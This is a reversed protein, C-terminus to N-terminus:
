RRSYLHPTLRRSVLEDPTLRRGAEENARRVFAPNVGHIRMSTLNEASLREYGLGRLEGVFEPTVGHIRLAVLDDTDFGTMGAAGLARIYEPTAGHIRLQVAMEASPRYGAAALASIYDPTVRHIRMQVLGDVTGVRYGATAMGRIYDGDVRHVGAAVLDDVEPTRYGQRALEEVMGIGVRALALGYSQERDPAAINHRALAAAFAPDATFSCDGTGRGRRAVGECDFRGAERVLQFRVPMNDGALQERTLGNLEALDTTNSWQSSSRGRRYGISFQVRNADDGSPAITWDLRDPVQANAAPQALYTLLAASAAVVLQRIM